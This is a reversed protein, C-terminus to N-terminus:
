LQDPDDPERARKISSRPSAAQSVACAFGEDWHRALRRLMDQSDADKFARIAQRYPNTATNAHRANYGQRFADAALDTM